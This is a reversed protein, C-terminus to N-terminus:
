LAITNLKERKIFVNESIIVYKLFNIKQIHFNSKKIKIKFKANKLTQLIKNIYVKYKIKTKSYIFIDNIYIIIFQNLFLQLTKNITKQM